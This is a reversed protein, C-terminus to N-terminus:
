RTSTSPLSVPIISVPRPPFSTRDISVPSFLQAFTSTIRAHTASGPDSRHPMAERSRREKRMRRGPRGPDTSDDYSLQMLYKM